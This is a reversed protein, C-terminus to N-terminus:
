HTSTPPTIDLSLQGNPSRRADAIAEDLWAGVQNQAVALLRRDLRAWTAGRRTHGLLNRLQREVRSRWSRRQKANVGRLGAIRRLPVLIEREAVEAGVIGTALAQQLTAVEGRLRTVDGVAARLHEVEALVEPPLVFTPPHLGRRVAIYVAIMEDLIAEAIPAESRACVKLLEAETLWYENFTYERSGGNGTSQRGVTARCNPRKNEPWIREILKRVDRPRAFGLRTAADTDRILAETGKAGLVTFTWDGARVLRHANDGDGIVESVFVPNRNTDDTRVKDNNM